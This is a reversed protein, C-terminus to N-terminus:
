ARSMLLLESLIRDLKVLDATEHAASIVIRNICPDGSTPYPFSSVIIGSNELRKVWDVDSFGYVPFRPDHELKRFTDLSQAFDMNTRLKKRQTEFLKVRELFAFLYAPPPPSAGRYTATLRIVELLKKPGLVIGAPLSLGKGLSGSVLLDVPLHRWRAYSGFIGEGLVGFGHSDDILLTYKHRSSLQEIWNFDHVRPRLVDLSNSLILISTPLLQEAEQICRIKWNERDTPISVSITNPLIAPHTGPAVWIHQHQKKLIDVATTGALFGSSWVIADEAGTARAFHDEFKEYIDLRVNNIRSLGHSIGYQRFGAAITTEFAEVQGMGLYSTGSFFSYEKEGYSLRSGIKSNLTFISEMFIFSKFGEFICNNGPPWRQLDKIAKFYTQVTKKEKKTPGASV